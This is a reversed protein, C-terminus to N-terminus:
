NCPFIIDISGQFLCSRVLSRKQHIKVRSRHSSSASPQIGLNIRVGADLVKDVGMVERYLDVNFLLRFYEFAEARLPCWGYLHEIGVAGLAMLEFTIQRWVVKKSLQLKAQGIRRKRPLLPFLRLGRVVLDQASQRFRIGSRFREVPATNGTVLAATIWCRQLLRCFCEFRTVSAASPRFFSRYPRFLSLILRDASLILRDSFLHNVPVRSALL